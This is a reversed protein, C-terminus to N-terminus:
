SRPRTPIPYDQEIETVGSLEAFPVWQPLWHGQAIQGFGLSQALGIPVDAYDVLVSGGYRYLLQVRADHWFGLSTVNVMDAIDHNGVVLRASGDPYPQFPEPPAVGYDVLVSQTESLTVTEYGSGDGMVAYLGNDVRRGPITIPQGASGSWLGSRANYTAVHHETGDADIRWIEALHPIALATEGLIEFEDIPNDATSGPAEGTGLWPRAHDRVQTRFPFGSGDVGSDLPVILDERRVGACRLVDYSAAQRDFALTLQGGPHVLTYGLGLADHLAAPTTFRAVQDRPYVLGRVTRVTGATMADAEGPALIKQFVVGMGVPMPALVADNRGFQTPQILTRNPHIPLRLDHLAGLLPTLAAAGIGAGLLAGGIVLGLDDRDSEAAGPPLSSGSNSKSGPPPIAGQGSGPQGPGSNVGQGPVGAGPNSPGFQGGPHPGAGGQIGGGVPIGAGGAPPMGAGAIPGMFGSPGMAAGGGANPVGGGGPLVGPAPQAGIPGAGGHTWSPAGPNLSPPAGVGASGTGSPPPMSGGGFGPSSGGGTSHSGGPASGGGSSWGGHQGGSGGASGGSSWGGSSGKGASTGSGQSHGGHPSSGGQSGGGQSHSGQSNSGQGGGGSVHGPQTGSTGRGDDPRAIGDPAGPGQGGGPQEPAAQAILRGTADMVPGSFEDGASRAVAAQYGSGDAGGDGPVAIADGGAANAADGTKSSVMDFLNDVVADSHTDVDSVDAPDPAADPDRADLAEKITSGIITDAADPNSDVWDQADKASQSLEPRSSQQQDHANEGTLAPYNVDTRPPFLDNSGGGQGGGKRGGGGAGTMGPLKPQIDATMTVSGLVGLLSQEYSKLIQYAALQLARIQVMALSAAAPDLSTAVLMSTHVALQALVTNMALKTEIVAQAATECGRALSDAAAATTIMLRSISRGRSTAADADKGSWTGQLRGITALLEDSDAACEAAQRTWTQSLTQLRDEDAQPFLGEYVWGPVLSPVVLGIM